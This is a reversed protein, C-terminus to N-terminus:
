VRVQIHAPAEKGHGGAWLQAVVVAVNRLPPITPPRVVQRGQWRVGKAAPACRFTLVAVEADRAGGEVSEDLRSELDFSTVQRLTASATTSKPSM